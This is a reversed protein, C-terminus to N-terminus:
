RRTVFERRFDFLRLEAKLAQGLREAETAIGFLRAIFLSVHRSVQMLLDSTQPGAENTGGSARWATFRAHLTPDAKALEADFRAHLRELGRPRYLDEFTFGDLGLVLDPRALDHYTSLDRM